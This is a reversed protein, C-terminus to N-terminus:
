NNKVRIEELNPKFFSSSPFHEHYAPFDQFPAIWEPMSLHRVHRSETSFCFDTLLFQKSIMRQNQYYTKTQNSQFVQYGAVGFLLAFFFIWTLIIYKFYNKM